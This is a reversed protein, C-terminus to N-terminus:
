KLKIQLIIPIAETNLFYNAEHMNQESEQTLVNWM